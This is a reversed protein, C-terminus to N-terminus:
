EVTGQIGMSNWDEVVNLLIFGRCIIGLFVSIRFFIEEVSLRCRMRGNWLSCRSLSVERSFVANWSSEGLKKKEEEEEPGSLVVRPLGCNENASDRAHGSGGSSILRGALYARM